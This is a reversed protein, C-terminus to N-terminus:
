EAEVLAQGAAEDQREVAIIRLLDVLDVQLIGVNRLCRRCITFPAGDVTDEGRGGAAGRRHPPRRGDGAGHEV